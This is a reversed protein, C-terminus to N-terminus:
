TVSPHYRFETQGSVPRIDITSWRRSDTSLAIPLFQPTHTRIADIPYGAYWILFQIKIEEDDTRYAATMQIERHREIRVHFQSLLKVLRAFRTVFRASIYEINWSRQHTQIMGPRSLLSNLIGRNQARVQYRLVLRYVANYLAKKLLLKFYTVYVYM